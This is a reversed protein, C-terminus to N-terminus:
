KTLDIMAEMWVMAMIPMNSNNPTLITSAFTHAFYDAPSNNGYGYGNNDKFMNDDPLSLSNKLWRIFYKSQGGVYNMLADGAGGGFWTANGGGSRNDLVHGLEHIIMALTSNEPANWTKNEFNEPLYVTSGFTICNGSFGGIDIQTGSLNKNIWEQGYGGAIQLNPQAKKAFGLLINNWGGRM